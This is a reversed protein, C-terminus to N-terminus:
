HMAAQLIRVLDGGNIVGNPVMDARVLEESTPTHQNLVIRIALLVDAADVEDDGNIDGNNIHNDEPTDSASLPDSGYLVEMGDNYTDDDTDADKPDTEGSDVAGNANLDEGSVCTAAVTGPGDCVGDGDTDPNTPDTFYEKGDPIGDGDSDYVPNCDVACSTGTEAGECLADGCCATLRAETRCALSASADICRDDNADVGCGINNTGGLAGCCFQKSAAGTQKGACDAPCTLCNEGDGGECLGNGCSAGSVQACDNPCSQCDEGAECTGDNDCNTPDHRTQYQRMMEHDEHDLIHCHQPFRGPYDEFDMIIRATAGAPIRVIDKWTNAEWPELPINQGNADTKSLIQFRV